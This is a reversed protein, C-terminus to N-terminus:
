AGSGQQSREWDARFVAADHDDDPRRIQEVGTSHAYATRPVIAHAERLWLHDGALGFPSHSEAWGDPGKHKCSIRYDGPSELWAWDGPGSGFGSYPRPQPKVLWRAQTKRGELTARVMEDAYSQTPRTKIQSSM